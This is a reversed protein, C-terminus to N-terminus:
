GTSSIGGLTQSLQKHIVERGRGSKLFRERIRADHENCYAEYYVLTLPRMSRTFTSEGNEHEEMRKKLDITFGTYLKKYKLSRLIYVYYMYRYM